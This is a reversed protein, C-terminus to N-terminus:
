LKTAMEIFFFVDMELTEPYLLCTADSPLIPRIVFEIDCNNTPDLTELVMPIFRYYDLNWFSIFDAAM